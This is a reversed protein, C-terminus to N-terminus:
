NVIYDNSTTALANLRDTLNKSKFRRHARSCHPNKLTGTDDCFHCLETEPARKMFMAGAGSSKTKMFSAGAGSSEKKM